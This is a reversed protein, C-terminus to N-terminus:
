KLKKVTSVERATNDVIKEGSGSLVVNDSHQCPQNGQKGPQSRVYVPILGIAGGKHMHRLRQHAQGHGVNQIEQQADNADDEKNNQRAEVLQGLHVEIRGGLIQVGVCM